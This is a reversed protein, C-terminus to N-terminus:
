LYKEISNPQFCVYDGVKLLTKKIQKVHIIVFQGSPKAFVINRLKYNAEKQVLNEDLVVQLIRVACFMESNKGTQFVEDKQGYFFFQIDGLVEVSDSGVFSICSDSRKKEDVYHISSFVNENVLYRLYISNATYNNSSLILNEDATLERKLQNKFFNQSKESKSQNEIELELTKFCQMIKLNNVLEPGQNHTAHTIKALSGNSSEYMFASTAWPNGWRRTGLVIHLLNHVNYTYDSSRYLKGIDRVFFNLMDDALQLEDKPIEDQLLIELAGVLLIWHQLYSNTGFKILIPVSYFLLWSRLETAKWKDLKTLSRPTRQVFNKPPKVQLLFTNIDEIQSGLYWDKKGKKVKVWVKTFQLVNGLPVNHMYEPFVCMGLDLLPIESVISRGKVGKEHKLHEKPDVSEHSKEVKIAQKLMEASNRLSISKHNYDYFFYKRASESDPDETRVAECNNCSCLGTPHQVNQVDARAPGDAVVIPAVACTNYVESTRPHTWSVKDRYIRKLSDVFPKLFTNMKPKFTGIWLGVTATFHLRHQPQVNCVTIQNPWFHVVSSKFEMKIGDTSWMLILDYERDLELKIKKFEEGDQLDGIKDPDCNERIANNEDIYDALNRQEFLYKIMEDVPFEYFTSSELSQCKSCKEGSSNKYNLCKACYYHEVADVNTAYDELYKFFQHPTKPMENSAPLIDQLFKLEEKLDQKSRKHKLHNRLLKVVAKKTSIRAGDYLQEDLELYQEQNEEDDSSEIELIDEENFNIYQCYDSNEM